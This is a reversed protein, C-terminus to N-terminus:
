VGTSDIEARGDREEVRGEDTSSCSQRLTCQAGAHTYHRATSHATHLVVTSGHAQASRRHRVARRATVRWEFRMWGVLASAAAAHHLPRCLALSSRVQACDSVSRQSIVSSVPSGTQRRGGDALRSVWEAVRVVRVSSAVGNNGSVQGAVRNREGAVGAPDVRLVQVRGGDALVLSLLEGLEDLDLGRLDLVVCADSAVEGLFFKLRRLLLVAAM